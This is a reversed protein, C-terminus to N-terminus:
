KAAPPPCSLTGMYFSFNDRAVKNDLVGSIDSLFSCINQSEVRTVASGHSCAVAVEMSELHTKPLDFPDVVLKRPIDSEEWSFKPNELVHLVRRLQPFTVYLIWAPRTNLRPDRSSVPLFILPPRPWYLKDGPRFPDYYLRVAVDEDGECKEILRQQTSAQPEARPRCSGLSLAAIGSALLMALGLYKM